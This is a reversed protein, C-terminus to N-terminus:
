SREWGSFWKTNISYEKGKCVVLTLHAKSRELHNVTNPKSYLSLGNLKKQERQLLELQTAPPKGSPYHDLGPPPALGPPPGIGLCDGLGPQNHVKGSKLPAGIRVKLDGKGRGKPLM